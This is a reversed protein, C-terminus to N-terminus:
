IVAFDSATLGLGSAVTAFQVMAGGGSGDADFYLAGTASNYIIRDDADGAASGTVFANASLAGLGLGTFVADDLQIKDVGHLFDSITDVNGAGLATTFAFNDAGGLGVLTDNGGGGNITNAGANGTITNNFGNGTLSLAATDALNVAELTEIESGAALTYSTSAAVRDAGQGASESALDGADDVYYTDNGLGGYMADNGSGGVLYDNGGLAVLADNGGEGRLFNVGDNGIVAQGFENGTLDMAITDTINVAELTEIEQGAALVSSSIAAVRDTGEGASEIVIDGVADVYYTDNGLGGYMTDTGAGGVLYDAGGLALLVDNGGEGRLFNVGANGIILQVFENGTLDMATTDGLTIAELTEVESGAALAFSASAAVRDNGASTAETVIDGAADVYYTDNGLGGAMTDNGAGGSLINAVANGILTDNGAGAFANEITVGNAITFGGYIGLAYSVRGGGGEEYELTAPRLDITANRTGGYTIADSSGGADWICYYYTGPANVDKMVYTDNGTATDENVGYKDQIAAIDFAMLGGLYGYGGSTPANHPNHPSTQWGDEYSMMTFVGQNLDFDGTTYDAVGAGEPEVGNMIGSHGGNDHPHALGHGHGFEHILTVFSFGGQQLDVANWRQDGSNFQALGEDSEDPPSMSGLLSVGPGPTGIYSTYIFDAEARDTVEIYVIDAVKSFEALATMVADHEFQAVGTATITAPPLGPNTPDNSVFIDGEQAFYITIVNKGPHGLLAGPDVQSQDNGTDRTGENGDPNRYTQHIKNVQTGWDIAYLPSNPSYYPTYLSEDGTVDEAYLGYDGIVDGNDSGDLPTNDFGRANVYYTGTETATFTLLADFGSNATNFVTDSGGDAATILVGNADYLELYADSLPVGNPGVPDGPGQPAYAYLGIQYQHGAILTIAYFDEDAITDVASVIPAADVTLTATTSTNGPVTDILAQPGPTVIAARLVSAAFKESDGAFANTFDDYAINYYDRSFRDRFGPM